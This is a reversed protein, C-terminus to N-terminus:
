VVNYLREDLVSRWEDPHQIIWQFDDTVSLTYSHQELYVNSTIPLVHGDVHIEKIDPKDNYVADTGGAEKFIFHPRGFEDPLLADIGGAKKLEEAGEKKNVGAITIHLEGKSDEYVYKKSGWTIFRNYNGEYEYVGLYHIRDKSDKAYALNKEAEEIYEKNLSAIDANGVFKISDTDCYVFHTRIRKTLEYEKQGAEYVCRIGAELRARCWCCVWVGWAFSQYPWKTAKEYQEAEYLEFQELITLDSDEDYQFATRYPVGQTEEMNHDSDDYYYQIRIPDMVTGGYIANVKQKSGNYVFEADVGNILGTVGKLQTKRNYYEMIVRRLQDPLKGYTSFAIYEIRMDGRWEYEQSIIQLDIDTIVCELAEAAMIRGNDMSIKIPKSRKNWSKHVLDDKLVLSVNDCKDYSLYPVPWRPDRLHIDDFAVKMIVAKHRRFILDNLFALNCKEPPAVFWRGMPFEKNIMASPYASAMDWSQVDHLIQGVFHRDAHTNGGRFAKRLMKHLEYDPIMRAMTTWNFTRMAKKEDRRVYGTSTMPISYLTDGENKMLQTVAEVLGIVDYTAYDLEKPTMKTWPYRIKKYNYDEGSLKVHEVKMQRTFQDLSMNSLRYSCRFEYPSMEAHLIRRPETCFVDDPEFHHIGSLFVYEFSLNHVYTVLRVGGLIERLRASLDLFEDWTRGIITIDPGIQLQWIYM